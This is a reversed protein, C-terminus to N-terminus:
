EPFGEAEWQVIIDILNQPLRPGGNPMHGTAGEDSSIRGILGKTEVANKVLEYTTLSIPAGNQPTTGHCALCNNTLIPKVNEQYSVTELATGDTLDSTSDNTCGCVAVLIAIPLFKKFTKM